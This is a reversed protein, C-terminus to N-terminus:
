VPRRVARRRRRVAGSARHSGSPRAVRRPRPGAPCGRGTRGGKAVGGRVGPDRLPRHRAARQEDAPRLRPVAGGAPGRGAQPSPRAIPRHRARRAPRVAPRAPGAAGDPGAPRATAAGGDDRGDPPLRRQRHGGDHRRAARGRAPGVAAVHCPTGPRLQAGVPLPRSPGARGREEGGAGGRHRAARRPAARGAGGGGRGHRRPPLARCRPHRRDLRASPRPGGRRRRFRRNRSLRLALDALRGRGATRRLRAVRPPHDAGRERLPRVSGRRAARRRPAAM